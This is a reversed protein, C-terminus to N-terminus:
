TKSTRTKKAELAALRAAQQQVTADLDKIAALAYALVHNYDITWPTTEDGPNVADPLIQYADQAVLGAEKYTETDDDTLEEVFDEAIVKDYTQPSLRRVVELGTTIATENFKARDDSTTTYSPASVAKTFTAATSSLTLLGAGNNEFGLIESGTSNLVVRGNDRLVIMPPSSAANNKLYVFGSADTKLSADGATLDGTVTLTPASVAKHFTAATPSLDLLSGAGDNFFAVNM